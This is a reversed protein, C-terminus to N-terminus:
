NSHVQRSKPSTLVVPTKLADVSLSAAASTVLSGSTAPFQFSPTNLGNGGSHINLHPSIGAAPSLISSMQSWFHLGGVPTGRAGVGGPVPSVVIHPSNTHSFTSQLITPGLDIPNPKHKSVTTLKDLPQPSPSNSPPTPSEIKVCCVESDKLQDESPPSIVTMIPVREESKIKSKDNEQSVPAKNSYDIAASATAAPEPSVQSTKKSVRAFDSYPFNVLSASNDDKKSTDPCAVFKYVFKQGLVKKIINKDYYYRLARSLKDYNMNSKNKRLGWLKAVEEANILKFEGENNTWKILHNYKENVLLELLFQWLTISSEITGSKNLKMVSMYRKEPSESDKERKKPSGKDCLAM